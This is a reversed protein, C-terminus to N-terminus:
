ESGVRTVVRVVVERHNRFGLREYLARANANSRMVHLFPTLGRQMQLRVLKLMLKKAHGHGQHDPHVCVGSIERFTGAGMREGAMAILRDGDFYGFYDGLEITRSGFPGPKTLATLALAQAADAAGLAIADPAEDKEPAPADWVMKFMTSELEVRWGAPAPGSWNECYLPEGPECWAALGSFDPSEPNEFGLLPSYGRAYRRAGGEGVALHAHPGVLSQWMINDLLHM